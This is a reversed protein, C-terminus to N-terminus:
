GAREPSGRERQQGVDIDRGVDGLSGGDGLTSSRSPCHILDASVPNLPRESIMARSGALRCGLLRGCDARSMCSARGESAPTPLRGDLRACAMASRSVSSCASARGLTPGCSRTCAHSLRRWGHMWGHMWGSWRHM